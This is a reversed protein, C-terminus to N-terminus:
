KEMENRGPKDDLLDGTGAQGGGALPLEQGMRWRAPSHSAHPREAPSMSGTCLPFLESSPSKPLNPIM